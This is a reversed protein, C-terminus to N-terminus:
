NNPRGHFAPPLMWTVPLNNKISLDLTRITRNRKRGWDHIQHWRDLQRDLGHMSMKVTANQWTVVEMTGRGTVDIHRMLASGAMSSHDFRSILQLAAKVQASKIARGPLLDTQKIGVLVQLWKKSRKRLTLKPNLPKMVFGHQDVWFTQWELRGNPSQRYLFVQAVPNRESVRIRLTDPLVRDVAVSKIMPVTELDRKVRMLDTQFLNDGKRSGSWRHIQAPDIVGNTRIDITRISFQDNQYFGVRMLWQGGCWVGFFLVSLGFLFGFTKAILRVRQQRVKQASLKVNVLTHKRSRRNRKRRRWWM